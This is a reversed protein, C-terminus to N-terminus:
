APTQDGPATPAAFSGDYDVGENKAVSDRIFLNFGSYAQGAAAAAYASKYSADITVAGVTAGAKWAKSADNILDRIAVQDDSRPNAPTVKRRAYNVGRWISYVVGAVKGRADYSGLPM